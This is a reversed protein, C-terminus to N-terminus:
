TSYYRRSPSPTPTIAKQKGSDIKQNKITYCTAVPLPIQSSYDSLDVCFDICILVM